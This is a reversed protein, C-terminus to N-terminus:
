EESKRRLRPELQEMEETAEKKKLTARAYEILLIEEADVMRFGAASVLLRMVECDGAAVCFAPLWAAPFRHASHTEAAFHDLMRVTVERGTLRTMEDAITQRSKEGARFSTQLARRVHLDM